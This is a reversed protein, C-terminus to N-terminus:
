WISASATSYSAWAVSGAAAEGDDKHEHIDADPNNEEDSEPSEAREPPSLDLVTPGIRDGRQDAPIIIRAKVFEVGVSAQISLADCLLDFELAGSSDRM